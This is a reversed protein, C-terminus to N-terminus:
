SGRSRGDRSSPGDDSTPHLRREREKEIPPKTKRVDQNEAKALDRKKGPRSVGKAAERRDGIKEAYKKPQSKELTV